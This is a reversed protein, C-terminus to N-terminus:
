QNPMVSSLSEKIATFRDDAAVNYWENPDNQHDYLEESGDAYQILRWRRSRASYVGKKVCTVVTRKSEAEPQRLRPTLSEGDLGAMTPLDCLDILTPYLDILSVPEGCQEGVRCIAQGENAPVIILPVRTSREWGTTKGWHEKEGLHWGHDSWLVVVTNDAYPGSDLADLLNGIQADVFSICALYAAVAEKWRGHRLVSEHLGATQISHALEIAPAGLDSFDNAPVEPAVTSDIPYLNFYEQPAYLPIHPRYFGVALFFPQGSEGQHQLKSAAWAGVKGDGMEGDPVDVAGWDFSSFRGPQLEQRDNPMGNLPRLAFRPEAKQPEKSAYPSWRQEPYFTEEYLDNFKRHMLKGTGLTRYGHAHFHEPLLVLQPHLKRIQQRNNCVGTNFPQKGSFVAARSPGCLPAACHANSFVVGRSALRDMHPTKVQPHGNLFGVWDNMDDVAILLVNPRAHAGLSGTAILVVLLTARHLM